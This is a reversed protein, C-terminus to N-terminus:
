ETKSSSAAIFDKNQLAKLAYRTCLNLDLLAKLLQMQRMQGAILGPFEGM